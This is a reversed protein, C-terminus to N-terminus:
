PDYSTYLDWWDNDDYTTENHKVTVDLIWKGDNKPCKCCATIKYGNVTREAFLSLITQREGKRATVCHPISSLSAM